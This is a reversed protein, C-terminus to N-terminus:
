VQRRLAVADADAFVDPVRRSWADWTGDTVPRLHVYLRADAFADKRLRQLAWKYDTKAGTILVLCRIHPAAALLAVLAAGMGPTEPDPLADYDIALHTVAPLSALAATPPVQSAGLHTLSATWPPHEAPASPFTLDSVLLRHLPLQALLPALSTYPYHGGFSMIGTCVSLVRQVVILPIGPAVYLHKVHAAFFSAPRADITALFPPVPDTGSFTPLLSIREYIFPEIWSQVRRCVQPLVLVTDSVHQRMWYNPQVDSEAAWEFIKRELEPPLIPEGAVVELDVPPGNRSVAVPALVRSLRRVAREVQSAQQSPKLRSYYRAVKAQLKKM